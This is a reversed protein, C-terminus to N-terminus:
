HGKKEEAAESEDLTKEAAEVLNPHPCQWREQPDKDRYKRIFSDLERLHEMAIQGVSSAQGKLEDVVASTKEIKSDVLNVMATSAGLWCKDLCHVVHAIYAREEETAHHEILSWYAKSSVVRSAVNRWEELAIKSQKKVEELEKFTM